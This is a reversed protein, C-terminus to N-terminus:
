TQREEEKKRNKEIEIYIERKWAEKIRFEFRLSV